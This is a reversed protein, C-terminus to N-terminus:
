LQIYLLSAAMLVPGLCVPSVKKNKCYIIYYLKNWKAIYVVNYFTIDIVNENYDGM